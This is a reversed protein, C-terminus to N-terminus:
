PPTGAPAKTATQAGPPRAANASPQTTAQRRSCPPKVPLCPVMARGGFLRFLTARSVGAHAALEDMSLEALGAADHDNGHGQGHRAQRAATLAALVQQKFITSMPM